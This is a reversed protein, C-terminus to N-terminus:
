RIMSDSNSRSRTFPSDGKSSSNKAWIIDTIHQAVLTIAVSLLPPNEPAPLSAPLSPYPAVM